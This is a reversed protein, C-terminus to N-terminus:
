RFSARGWSALTKAEQRFRATREADSAFMEPLIKIAVDRDLRTDRARYVEGMGGEGLKGIITYVGLRMDIDLDRETQVAFARQQQIAAIATEITRRQREARKM